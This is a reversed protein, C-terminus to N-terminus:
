RQVGAWAGQKDTGPCECVEHSVRFRQGDVGHSLGPGDTWVCPPPCELQWDVPAADPADACAALALAFLASRIM